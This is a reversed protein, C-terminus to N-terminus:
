RLLKRFSILASDKDQVVLQLSDLKQISWKTKASDGKAWVLLDKEKEIEYFSTDVNKSNSDLIIGNKLFDFALKRGNSDPMTLLSAFINNSDKSKSLDVTDIRWKGVILQTSDPISNNKKKSFYFYAAGGLAAILLVIFVNKM